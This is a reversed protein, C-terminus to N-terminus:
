ALEAPEGLELRAADIGLYRLLRLHHHGLGEVHTRERGALERALLAVGFDHFERVHTLDVLVEGEGADALERTLREAAPVDFVGDVRIVKADTGPTHGNM